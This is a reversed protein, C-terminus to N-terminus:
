VDSISLSHAGALETAAMEECWDARENARHNERTKGEMQPHSPHLPQATCGHRTSRVVRVTSRVYPM